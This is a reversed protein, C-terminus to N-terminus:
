PSTMYGEVRRTKRVGKIVRQSYVSTLFKSVGQAEELSGSDACGPIPLALCLGASECPKSLGQQSGNGRGKMLLTTGVRGKM